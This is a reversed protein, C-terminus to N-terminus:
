ITCPIATQIVRRPLHAVSLSCLPVFSTKGHSESFNGMEKAKHASLGRLTVCGDCSDKARGVNGNVCRVRQDYHKWITGTDGRQREAPFSDNIQNDGPM